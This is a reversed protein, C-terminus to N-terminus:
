RRPGATGAPAADIGSVWTAIEVRRSAGLKGLIHEVHAGVTKPSLGLEDAAEANTRGTAVLRAVEFERATLPRWPEDAVGRSRAIAALEDAREGLPRSGLRTATARVERLVPIADLHRNGRILSLALDLRAWAAEWCRGLADWGEVAAELRTRAAMTSGAQLRLLGEGHSLAIGAREWDGLYVGVRQLWAEAAAPRRASQAARVGTVVFPVLLAREGAPVALALASECWESAVLPEDAVLATEALGWIAPLLLESEGTVGAVERAAGLVERARAVDGRGFAVYGLAHHAGLGSRRSGPEVLELGAGALADDWRGETWAVMASASAMIRRCYSQEIEDAYRLGETLGVEAVHLDFLRIGLVAANRFADVGPSEFGANRAARALALIQDLEEPAPGAVAAAAHRFVRAEIAAGEDGILSALASAADLTADAAGLQGLALEHVGRTTLAEARLAERGRSEPLSDIEEMAQALLASAVAAPQVDRRALLASLVLMRAADLPQGAELYLRRAANASRTANPVRDIASAATAAGDHLAALEGPALSDPANALAREYLEFAERRSSVAMAARAGGLATRYAQARLGAREFHVSAHIETTGVLQAGFEAARAHLRRLEGAPVTGYLADRLLQHRFDFYGRDHSSFPFLFAQEVLEELPGDLDAIQRDMVGALVEPVFCRGIVAGARAVARADSSLRAFRALVADEITDPVQVERIARGDSRAGEGLAGLLEEIHLPVGDTRNFVATVVDRPAPLGTDLILTTVLATEEYSLPGLTAEEAFRQGLLRARWERLASGIQAEDLRYTAVVLLPGNRGLRAVEGIVELSLEDGWQLDEFALLTPVDVSTVIRSALDLVRRRRTGLVDGGGADQPELLREGLSGFASSGLMTRALDALSALPVQRDQPALDGKAARFGAQQAKRLIAQLLRTKGVGAEGALLLVHGRGAKVEGIRRDALNLLDDRGVLLPSLLPGVRSM